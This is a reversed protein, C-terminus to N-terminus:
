VGLGIIAGLVAGSAYEGYAWGRGGMGKFPYYALGMLPCLAAILTNGHAFYLAIGVAPIFLSMRLAMAAAGWLAPPMIPLYRMVMDVPAFEDENPVANNVIAGVYKGWGPLFALFLGLWAVVGAWVNGSLVGVLVGMGNTSVIRSFTTSTTLDFFKSGRARNLVSFCLIFILLWLANIM